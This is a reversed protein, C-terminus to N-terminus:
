LYNALTLNKMTSLLQFSAQLQTQTQTLQSVAKAMDVDNLNSLQSTLTTIFDTQRTQTADLTQQKVGLNAALTTVQASGTKLDNAARTAIERFGAQTTTSLNTTALAFLAGLINQFAPDDARIGYQVSQNNDIDVSQTPIPAGFTATTDTGPTGTAALPPPLADTLGVGSSTGAQTIEISTGNIVRTVTYVTSSNSFKVSMGASVGTTSGVTIITSGPPTGQRINITTAPPPAAVAATLGGSAAGSQVFSVTNTTPDVYTVDYSQTAAGFTIRDGVHYNAITSVQISTAGLAAAATNTDTLATSGATQVTTVASPSVVNVSTGSPIAFDVGNTITGAGVPVRQITLTQGAVATVQYAANQPPITGFEIYQGVVPLDATQSLTISTGNAAVAGNTTFRYASGGPEATEGAYGFASPVTAGTPATYKTGNRLFSQIANYLQDGSGTTNGLPISGQLNAVQGVISGASATSGFNPLPQTSSARGAFLYSSGVTTNLLNSIQNLADQAEAKLTANGQTVPLADSSANLADNRVQNALDTIQQLVSQMPEIATTANSINTLYGNAMTKQNTLQLSLQSVTNIGSFTDSKNGSSVQNSLKDLQTEINLIQANLFTNQGITSVTSM